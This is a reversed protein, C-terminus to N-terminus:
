RSLNILLIYLWDIPEDETERVYVVSSTEFKDMLFYARAGNRVRFNVIAINIWKEVAQWAYVEDNSETMRAAAQDPRSFLAIEVKTDSSFGYDLRCQTESNVLFTVTEDGDFTFREYIAIEKLHKMEKDLSEM